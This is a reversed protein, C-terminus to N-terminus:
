STFRTWACLPVEEEDGPFQITKELGSLATSEAGNAMERRTCLHATRPGNRHLFVLTQPLRPSSISLNPASRTCNHPLKRARPSAVAAYPLAGLDGCSGMDRGASIPSRSVPPQGSRTGCARSARSPAPASRPTATRSYISRSRRRSPSAARASGSGARCHSRSGTSRAADPRSRMGM